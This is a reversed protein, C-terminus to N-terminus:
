INLLNFRMFEISRRIIERSHDSDDWLDFAHPAQPLNEFTLPLDLASALFRDISDNLGPTEDQGARAIFLPLNRPLDATTKGQNPNAFGWQRAADSVGTFDGSDLMYGYFLAACKLRGPDNIILSLATPANGSCAWLGIGDIGLSDSNQCLFDLVALADPAPDVNSYTVAALGSAAMLRAWSRYSEMEKQRCGLFKQFGADPYGTVFLVAPTKTQTGAPYCIDLTRDGPAGYEIDQRVFAEDMGDLRLVVPQRIIREKQDTHSM